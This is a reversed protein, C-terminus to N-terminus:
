KINVEKYPCSSRDTKNVVREIIGLESGSMCLSLFYKNFSYHKGVGPLKSDGSSAEGM